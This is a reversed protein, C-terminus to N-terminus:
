ALEVAQHRGLGHPRRGTLAAQALKFVQVMRNSQVNWYEARVIRVGLLALSPDDPGQPFWPRAMASWMAHKRAAEDFLRAHGSVSVYEGKGPHAFGINVTPDNRVDRLADCDQDVFFWLMGDADIARNLATLPRAHLEGDSGQTALMGCRIDRILNWLEEHPTALLTM